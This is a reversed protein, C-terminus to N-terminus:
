SSLLASSKTTTTTDPKDLLFNELFNHIEEVPRDKGFQIPSEISVGLEVGKKCLKLGKKDFAVNLGSIKVPVVIPNLAKIISSAGQRVPANAATTGQPFTIVWGYSLATKIKAPARYDSSRQVDKGQHRWARKVTVAGAYSFIRALMGSNKMTEEAAIYYARHCPKLLYFPSRVPKSGSRANSFVHYLAMVDAFYTQHNSVFMVNQRPLDKLFEAGEVKIKNIKHFRRYTIFGILSILIRKLILINGFPDKFSTSTRNKQAM